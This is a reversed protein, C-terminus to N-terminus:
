GERGERLLQIFCPVIGGPHGSFGEVVVLGERRQGLADVPMELSEKLRCPVLEILSPILMASIPPSRRLAVNRDDSLLWRGNWGLM